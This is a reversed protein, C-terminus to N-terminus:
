DGSNRDEDGLARFTDRADEELLARNRRERELGRRLEYARNFNSGRQITNGELADLTHRVNSNDRALRNVDRVPEQDQTERLLGSM